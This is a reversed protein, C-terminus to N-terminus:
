IHILSLGFPSALYAENKGGEVLHVGISSLMHYIRKATDIYGRDYLAHHLSVYSAIRDVDLRSTPYEHRVYSPTVEVGDYADMGCSERFKGTWFSKASNVKLCFANLANMVFPVWGVPVILDDGYVSIDSSYRKISSSTPRTGEATHKSALIVTYFVLSEIPFCMASGQSAFKWLHCNTGDPLVSVATRCAFVQDRFSPNRRLMHYVVDKHVRDSAEKLDLTALIGSKSSKLALKANHSQDSFRISKRTLPSSELARVIGHLLGQQCLQTLSPEVGIIRPGKYTKPVHIVRVPLEQEPTVFEISHSRDLWGSVSRFAIDEPPFASLMRKYWYTHSYKSIMDLRESVAGTGHRFSSVEIRMESILIDAVSLFNNWLAESVQYPTWLALENEVDIYGRYAAQIRSESCELQVKRLLRCIQRICRISEISPEDILCGDKSFIQSTFGSLFRPLCGNKQRRFGAFSHKGVSGSALSREFDDCFSGLTISLFAYGEEESRKVVYRIDNSPNTGCMRGSETLVSVLLDRLSKM